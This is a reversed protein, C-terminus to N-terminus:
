AGAQVELRVARRQQRHVGHRYHAGDQRVPQKDPADKLTVVPPLHRARRALEDLDVDEEDHDGHQVPHKDLGPPLNCDDHHNNGHKEAGAGTDADAPDVPLAGESLVPM